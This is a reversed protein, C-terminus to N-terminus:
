GNVGQDNGRETDVNGSDRRFAKVSKVWERRRIWKIEESGRFMSSESEGMMGKLHKGLAKGDRIVELGEEM